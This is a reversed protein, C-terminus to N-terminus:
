NHKFSKDLSNSTQCFTYVFIETEISKNRRKNQDKLTAKIFTFTISHASQHRNHSKPIICSVKNRWVSLPFRPKHFPQAFNKLTAWVTFSCAPMIRFVNPLFVHNPPSWCSGQYCSLTGIIRKCILEITINIEKILVLRSYQQSQWRPVTTEFLISFYSLTIRKTVM